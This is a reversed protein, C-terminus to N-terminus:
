SPDQELTAIEELDRDIKRIQALLGHKSRIYNSVLFVAVMLGYFPIMKVSLFPIGASLFVGIIMVPALMLGNRKTKLKYKEVIKLQRRFHLITEDSNLKDILLYLRVAWIYTIVSLSVFLVIGLIVGFSPVFEIRPVVIIAILPLPLVLSILSKIKIWDIRKDTNAILLKRILERNIRTGAALQQEHHLWIRQLEDM